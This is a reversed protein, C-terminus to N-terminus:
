RPFLLTIPLRLGWDPGGGPSEPYWRGWIGIQIRQGGVKFLQQVGVNLPVTWEEGEWDYTSETNLIFTTARKTTYNVFSQLFTASVDVFVLLGVVLARPNM